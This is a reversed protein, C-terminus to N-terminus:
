SVTCAGFLRAPALSASARSAAIMAATSSPRSTSDAFPRRLARGTACSASLHCFAFRGRCLSRVPSQIPQDGFVALVWASLKRRYM